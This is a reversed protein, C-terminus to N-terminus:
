WGERLRQALARPLGAAIIRDGAAKVDYSVRIHEFTGAVSDLLGYCARPDGDRPQGVSGVNLIFRHESDYGFVGPTLPWIRPLHTHGIVCLRQSFAEAYARADMESFVYAFLRPSGPSAHALHLEGKTVSFPLTALWQRDESSIQAATWRIAEAARTSFFEQFSPDTVAVDHNGQLSVLCRDRVLAICERPQAGYGVIDGLCYVEHVDRGDIDEFVARLADFNSHIDSVFALRM